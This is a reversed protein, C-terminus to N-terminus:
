ISRQKSIMTLMLSLSVDKIYERSANETKIAMFHSYFTALRFLVNTDFEM